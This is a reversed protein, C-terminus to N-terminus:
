RMLRLRAPDLINTGSMRLAWYGCDCPVRGVWPGRGQLRRCVVCGDRGNIKCSMADGLRGVKERKRFNEGQPAAVSYIAGTDGCADTRGRM